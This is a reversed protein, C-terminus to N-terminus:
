KPVGAAVQRAITVGSDGPNYSCADIDIIVNNAATLARQCAWGNVNQQTATLRLIGDSNTVPGVDWVGYPKGDVTYTYPANSCGSWQNQSTAAFATAQEATPFLVLVQNVMYQDQAIDGADEFKQRLVTTWGSGAYPTTAGSDNVAQCNTGEVHDSFDVLTHLTNTIKLGTTGMATSVGAPSLMLGSMAAKEVLPADKGAVVASTTAGAAVSSTSSESSDHSSSGGSTMGIAIGAIAVVAAVAVGGFIWAKSSSPPQAQPGIQVQAPAQPAPQGMLPAVRAPPWPTAVPPNTTHTPYTQGVTPLPREGSIRQTAYGQMGAAPMAAPPTGPPAAGWAPASPRQPATLANKAAVALDKVSHFRQDPDKAMGKAIVEDMAPPLGTHLESPRPPANFMHATAVQEFGAGAFPQHGALMEYLVCTLAYTDARADATGAQFREPAMYAWTGLTTGVSTLAASGTARAIGFDILYAFDEPTVLINSPKVDRHVLGSEHSAHLAAAIQETISVARSPALAGNKLIGQLDSGTILRMTVFLRGDIEGFDYIPVVHPEDLGAVARAERRFREQFVQDDAFSAPLLKLAVVRDIETDYARWVEGMGGKGLLEVIRYRGFQTGEQM